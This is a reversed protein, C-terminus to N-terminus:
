NQWNVYKSASACPPYLKSMALWLQPLKSVTSSRLFHFTFTFWKKKQTLTQQLDSICGTTVSVFFVMNSHPNKEEKSQIIELYIFSSIQGQGLHYNYCETNSNTSYNLSFSVHIQWTSIDAPISYSLRHFLCSIYENITNGM